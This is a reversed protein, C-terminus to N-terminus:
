RIHHRRLEREFERERGKTIHNVLAHFKASHNHHVTHCLEHIIIFERLHLPLAMTYLSISINNDGSCSGWRTQASSIRLSKYRLNTSSSIHAVLAPLERKARARLEEKDFSTAPPQLLRQQQNREIISRLKDRKSELFEIARKVSYGTPYSLRISDDSRGVRISITRCRHSECLIVTGLIKDQYNSEM